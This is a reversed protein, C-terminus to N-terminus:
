TTPGSPATPGALPSQPRPRIALLMLTDDSAELRFPTDPRRLVNLWAARAFPTAANVLLHTLGAERVLAELADADDPLRRATEMREAFGAPYYSGYGNLLPRWHYTSRLMARAHPLGAVARPLLPLELVVADPLARLRDTVPSGAPTTELPYSAGLPTRGDRGGLWDSRCEAYMLGVVLAAVGAAAARRGRTCEAVALGALLAVGVLAAVAFRTSIRLV